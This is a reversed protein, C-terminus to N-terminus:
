PLSQIHEFYQMRLDQTIKISLLQSAYRSTFLFIAKFLAVIVLIAILKILREELNLRSSVTHLVRNLVNHKQHKALFASADKKTIYGKNRRDIKRWRNQIDNLSIGEKKEKEFLTFFDAGRNAMLGLAFMETTNAVTLILLTILTSIALILHKRNRVAALLLLKM